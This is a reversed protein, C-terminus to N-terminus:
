TQNQHNKQIYNYLLLRVEHPPIGADICELLLDMWSAEIASEKLEAQMKIEGM